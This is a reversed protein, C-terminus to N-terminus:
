DGRRRRRNNEARQYYAAKDAYMRGDSLKYMEDVTEGGARCFYGMAVSLGQEQVASRVADLVCRVADEDKKLFLILFEDGGVRYPIVDKGAASLLCQGIAALARDGADHGEADNIRKLGNMDISAVATVRARYLESDEYYAQRNLLGTMADRNVDQTRIFMHYFVSSIIIAANLRSGGVWADVMSALATCLACLSLVRREWTFDPGFRRNTFWLVMLIYLYGVVFPTYGMPGRTFDYYEDFSFVVPSFFATSVILCNVIAPIWLLLRHKERYAVVMVLGLAAVPRLTYGLVSLLIRWFRLAENQAALVELHEQAVLLTVTIVTLWLYGSQTDRSKRRMALKMSFGAILFLTLFHDGFFKEPM